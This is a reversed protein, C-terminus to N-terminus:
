KRRKRKKSEGGGTDGEGVEAGIVAREVAAKRVKEPVKGWYLEERTGEVLEVKIPRHCQGALESTLASGSGDLGNM